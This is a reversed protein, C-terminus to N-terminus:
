KNSQTIEKSKRINFFLYLISTLILTVISFIYENKFVDFYNLHLLNWESLIIFNNLIIILYLVPTKIPLIFNKLMEFSFLFLSNLISIYFTTKSLGNINNMSYYMFLVVVIYMLEKFKLKYLM